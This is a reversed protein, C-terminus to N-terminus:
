LNTRFRLGFSVWGHMGFNDKGLYPGTALEAYPGIGLYHLPKLDLGMELTGDIGQLANSLSSSGDTNDTEVLNILEYGLGAGIWPDWTAEPAFHYHVVAGFRIM